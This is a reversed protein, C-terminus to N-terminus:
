FLSKKRKETSSGPQQCLTLAGHQGNKGLPGPLFPLETGPQPQKQWVPRHTQRVCPPPPHHQQVWARGPGPSDKRSFGSAELCSTQVRAPSLRPPPLYSCPSTEAKLKTSSTPLALAQQHCM